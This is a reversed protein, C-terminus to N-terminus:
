PAINKHIHFYIIHTGTSSVQLAVVYGQARTCHVCNHVVDVHILVSFNIQPIIRGFNQVALLYYTNCVYVPNFKFSRIQQEEYTTFLHQYMCPVTIHDPTYVNIKRRSQHLILNSVLVLFVFKRGTLDTKELLNWQM